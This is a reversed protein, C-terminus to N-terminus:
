QIRRKPKRGAEKKRKQEARKNRMWESQAKKRAEEKCPRPALCYRDNPYAKFFFRNCYECRGIIKYFNMFEVAIADLLDRPAPEITGALIDVRLAAGVEKGGITAPGFILALSGNLLAQASEKDHVLFMSRFLGSAARVTHIPGSGAINLKSELAEELLPIRRLPGYHSIFSEASQQEQANLNLLTRLAGRVDWRGAPLSVDM